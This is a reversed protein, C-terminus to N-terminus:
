GGGIGIVKLLDNVGPLRHMTTVQGGFIVVFM